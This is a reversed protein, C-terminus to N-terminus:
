AGLVVFLAVITWVVNMVLTMQPLYASAFTCMTNDSFSGLGMMSLDLNWVPCVSSHGPLTWAQLSSFTNAWSNGAPDNAQGPMTSPDVTAPDGVASVASFAAIVSSAAAQADGQRAYDNPWCSTGFGTGNCSGSGSGSGTSSGFGSGSGSGSPAPSTSGTVGPAASGSPLTPSIPVPTALTGSGVGSAGAAPSSGVMQSTNSVQTNSQQVGAVSTNLASIANAIQTQLAIVSSQLNSASTQLASGGATATSIQTSDLPVGAATATQIATTLNSINGLVTQSQSGYQQANSVATQAAKILNNTSTIIPPAAASASNFNSVAANYADVNAPTPNAAVAMGTNTVQQSATNVALNANIAAQQAASLSSSSNGSYANVLQTANSVSQNLGSTTAPDVNQAATQVDQAAKQVSQAAPSPAQLAPSSLDLTVTLPPLDQLTEPSSPPMKLGTYAVNVACIGFVCAATSVSFECGPVPAVELAGLSGAMLTPTSSHSGGTFGQTQNINSQSMFGSGAYGSPCPTSSVCKGFTSSTSVTDVSGGNPCDLLNFSPTIGGGFVCISGAPSPTPISSVTIGGFTQSPCSPPAFCAYYQNNGHGDTVAYSVSSSSTLHPVQSQGNFDPCSSNLDTPVYSTTTSLGTCGTPGNNWGTCGSQSATTVLMYVTSGQLVPCYTTGGTSGISGTCATILTPSIEVPKTPVPNDVNPYPAPPLIYAFVSPAFLLWFFLTYVTKM